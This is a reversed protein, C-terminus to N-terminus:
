ALLCVAIKFVWAAVTMAVLLWGLKRWPLRAATAFYNKGSVAGIIAVPLMFVCIVFGIAGLPQAFLAEIVQGRAMHAFATTMGCSPCPLGTTAYFNCPRLFLQEHTGLGRPDPKLLFALLLVSTLGLAVCAHALRLMLSRNAIRKEEDEPVCLAKVPLSENGINAHQM